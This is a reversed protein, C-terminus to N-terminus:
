LLTQEYEGLCAPPSGSWDGGELCELVTHGQPEREGQCTYMALSGATTGTVTTDGNVVAPPQGCELVTLTSYFPFAITCKKSHLPVM